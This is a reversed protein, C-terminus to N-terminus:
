APLVGRVIQDVLARRFPPTAGEGSHWRALTAIMMAGLMANAADPPDGIPFEGSRAGDALVQQLPAAIVADKSAMLAEMRGATGAFSLLGACVGPRDGLFDVLVTVVLRLRAPAPQQTEGAAAIAAATASMHEELLYAVLDDRGGFYYYLTARSSGIMAAVDELRTERDPRLV